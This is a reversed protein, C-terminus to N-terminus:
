KGRSSEFMAECDGRRKWERGVEPWVGQVPKWRLVERAKQNSCRFSSPRPKSLDVRPRPGGVLEALHEIYERYRIPEDCINFTSGAPARELAMVYAAAADEVHVPSIWNAGDGAIIKKGERLQEIQREQGTGPGVFYGERLVVWRVERQQHRFLRMMSEVIAVAQCVHAREPTKDLPASEDLWAEGGDRYGMVVSQALFCNVGAELAARQLRGTGRTRIQTNRDWAGSAKADEPIATAAHIVADCGELLSVMRAEVGSELLDCRVTELRSGAEWGPMAKWLREAKEVDRVLCRVAHGAALLQPVLARGLVGTAGALAVKV